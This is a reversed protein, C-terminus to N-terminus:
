VNIFNNDSIKDGLDLAWIYTKKPRSSIIFRVENQCGKRRGKGHSSSGKHQSRCFSDECCACRVKCFIIQWPASSVCSGGLFEPSCTSKLSFNCAAMSGIWDPIVTLMWPRCLRDNTTDQLMMEMQHLSLKRLVMGTKATLCQWMHFCFRFM